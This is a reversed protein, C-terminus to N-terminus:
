TRKEEGKAHVWLENQEATSLERVDRGQERALEEVRAWRRRFKRNSAALAREADVGERRAVNVIAFLM